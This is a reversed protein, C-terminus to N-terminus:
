ETRWVRIGKVEKGDIEEVVTRSIFHRDEFRKKAYNMAGSITSSKANPVMFSDGKELDAFPYKLKRTRHLGKEPIKVNKEVKYQM